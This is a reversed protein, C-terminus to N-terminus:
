FHIVHAYQVNPKLQTRLSRKQSRVLDRELYQIQKHSLAAM